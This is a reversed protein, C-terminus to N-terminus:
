GKFKLAETTEKPMFIGGTKYKVGYKNLVEIAHKLDKETKVYWSILGDEKFSKEVLDKTERLSLGTLTEKIAKIVAFNLGDTQKSLVEASQERLKITIWMKFSGKSQEADTDVTEDAVSDPVVIKDIREFDEPSDIFVNSQSPCIAFKSIFTVLNNIAEASETTEKPYDASNLWNTVKDLEIGLALRDNESLQVDCGITAYATKNTVKM